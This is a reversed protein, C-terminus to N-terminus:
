PVRLFFSHEACFALLMLLLAAKIFDPALERYDVYIFQEVSTKELKDIEKMAKELGEADRARYYKGGSSDSMDKLLKEDFEGGLPVLQKGFMSNQLVYAQDSGIGVTYLTVNFQDAIKAAQLPTVTANVNNSGDTFLVMVKRKSPSEKLRQVGSMVPGAIGTSDGIIGPKLSDMHAMLWSHDLTPPCATYPLPAFAILGIRDNPRREIFKKIEEKAVALRDKARGTEVARSFESETTVGSPVDIARMSGSLDIALIIDIGEGRQKIEEIGKRPGALAFILIAIATLYPIYIWKGAFNSRLTGAAEEFNKVSSIRFAPLKRRFMYIALILFPIYLLFFWPNAFNM